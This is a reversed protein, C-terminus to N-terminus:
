SPAPLSASPRVNLRLMKKEDDTVPAFSFLRWPNGADIAASVLQDLISGPANYAFQLADYWDDPLRAPHWNDSAKLEVSALAAMFIEYRFLIDFLADADEKQADTRADIEGFEAALITFIRNRKARFKAMDFASLTKFTLRYESETEGDSVFLPVPTSFQWQDLLSM